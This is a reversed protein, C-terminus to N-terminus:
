VKYTEIYTFTYPRNCQFGNSHSLNKEVECEFTFLLLFCNHAIRRYHCYDSCLWNFIQYFANNNPYCRQARKQQRLCRYHQSKVRRFPRLGFNWILRQFEHWWNRWFITDNWCYELIGRFNNACYWSWCQDCNWRNWNMQGFPGISLVFESVIASLSHGRTNTKVDNWRVM